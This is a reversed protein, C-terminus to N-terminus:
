VSRALGLQELIKRLQTLNAESCHEVPRIPDGAPVGILNLADKTVVPFSGLSFALRLPALRFQAARAGELDGAMFKEYIEVVLKPAVNATAAVTGYGGYALTAFILMDRGAIVRFAKGQTRRIMEATLTMDGSSDKVGIINDIDALKAVVDASLNVGTKDPNNYLLVPLGTSKAITEYHRYLEAKTPQIFMPTLVSVAAAGLNEAMRTLKVCERTTIASAGVYVPVRGRVQDVTIEVVRQQNDFDLGYFEGTSGLVFVGHVGGALVYEILNRLQTEVVNEQGDVPTVLPPIVGRLQQIDM